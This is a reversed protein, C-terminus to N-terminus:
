GSIRPLPKERAFEDYLMKTIGMSDVIVGVVLVSLYFPLSWTNLVTCLMAWAVIAIKGVNNAVRLWNKNLPINANERMVEWKRIKGDIKTKALEEALGKCDHSAIKELRTDYKQQQAQLKEIEKSLKETAKSSNAEGLAKEKAALTHTIREKKGRFDTEFNSLDVVHKTSLQAIAEKRFQWKALKADAHNIKKEAKPIGDSLSDWTGFFSSLMIFSDMLLVFVPLKGIANKAMIGLEVFGARNLGKITKFVNHFALCVRDARRQWTNHSNTLFYKGEKDRSVFQKITGFIKVTEFLTAADRLETSLAKMPKSMVGTLAANINITRELIKVIKELPEAHTATFAAMKITSEIGNGINNFQLGKDQSPPIFSLATM